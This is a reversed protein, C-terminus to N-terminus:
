TVTGTLRHAVVTVPGTAVPTAEQAGVRWGGLGLAAALGAGGRLAARRSLRSTATPRVTGGIADNGM